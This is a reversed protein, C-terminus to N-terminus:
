RVPRLRYVHSRPEAALQCLRDIRNMSAVTRDLNEKRRSYLEVSERTQTDPPNREFAALREDLYPQMQEVTVPHEIEPAAQHEAQALGRVNDRELESRAQILRLLDLAQRYQPTKTEVALNIGAALTSSDFSGVREGDIDLEYTAPRLGVVQLIEHNFEEIFPVWAVASAVTPDVPFPLAEETWEFTLTDGDRIIDKVIGNEAATVANSNLDISLRSIMGGLNQAKLFLYAMLLQGPAEPHVRDSGVVTAKRNNRQLAANIRSMPEHLDVLSSGTEDALKRLFAACDALADNVGALVPAPLDAAQDYISPTLLIVRAGAAQIESVLSRMNEEFAALRERRRKAVEIGFQEGRYLEPGVDNMGFMISVVSPQHPIVDWDLRQLAGAATDGSIGCNFTAIERRPFRTLYFLDVWQFYTGYHTINDGLVCWREGDGFPKPGHAADTRTLGLPGICGITAVLLVFRVPSAPSNM